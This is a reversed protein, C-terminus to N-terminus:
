SCEVPEWNEIAYRQVGCMDSDPIMSSMGFVYPVKYISIHIEYVVRKEVM